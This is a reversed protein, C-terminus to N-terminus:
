KFEELEKIFNFKRMLMRNDQINYLKKLILLIEKKSFWRVRWINNNKVINKEQLNTLCSIKQNFKEVCQKNGSFSLEYEYKGKRFHRSIGGDGDLCGRLLSPLFQEDIDPLNVTFTKNKVIGYKSLDEVMKKCCFSFRVYKKNFPKIKNELGLDKELKELIYRDRNQISLSICNGKSVCGDTIMWGLWYAKENSDIHEFYNEKLNLNCRKSYSIKKIKNKEIIKKIKSTYTNLSLSISYISQGNQYREIVENEFSKLIGVQYDRHKINHRKLINYITGISCKCEESIEKTQFGEQYLNIVKKDREKM